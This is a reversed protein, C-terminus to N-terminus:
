ESDMVLAIFLVTFALLGLLGIGISEFGVFMLLISILGWLFVIKSFLVNGKKLSKQLDIIEKKLRNWVLPTIGDIEIEYKKM